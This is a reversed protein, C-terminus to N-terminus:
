YYRRVSTTVMGHPLTYRHPQFSCVNLTVRLCCCQEKGANINKANVRAGNELLFVLVNLNGNFAAHHLPTAQHNDLADNIGMSEHELLFRCQVILSSDNRLLTSAFTWLEVLLLTIYHFHVPRTEDTLRVVM